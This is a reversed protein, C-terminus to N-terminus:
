NVSGIQLEWDNNDSVIFICQETVDLEISDTSGLGTNIEDALMGVDVYHALSGTLVQEDFVGGTTRIPM